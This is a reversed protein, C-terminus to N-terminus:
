VIKGGVAQLAARAKKKFPNEGKEAVAGAIAVAVKELDEQTFTPKARNQWAAEAMGKTPFYGKTQPQYDCDENSCQVTFRFKGDVHRSKETTSRADCFPCNLLESSM